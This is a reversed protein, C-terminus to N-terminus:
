RFVIVVLIVLGIVHCKNATCRIGVELMVPSSHNLENRM